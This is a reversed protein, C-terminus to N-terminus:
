IGLDFIGIVPDRLFRCSLSPFFTPDQLFVCSTVPVHFGYEPRFIEPNKGVYGSWKGASEALFRYSIVPFFESFKGAPVRSGHEPPKRHIGAPVTGNQKIQITEYIITCIIWYIM